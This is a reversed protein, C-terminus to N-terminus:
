SFSLHLKFFYIDEDFFCEIIEEAFRRRTKTLGHIPNSWSEWIKSGVPVDMPSNPKGNSGRFLFM